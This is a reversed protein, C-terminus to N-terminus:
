GRLKTESFCQEFLPWFAGDVEISRDKELHAPKIISKMLLLLLLLVTIIKIIEILVNLIIIKIKITISITLTISVSSHIKFPKKKEESVIM